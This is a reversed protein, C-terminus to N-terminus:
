EERSSLLLVGLVPSVVKILSLRNPSISSLQVTGDGDTLAGVVAALERPIRGVHIKTTTGNEERSIAYEYPTVPTGAALDSYANGVVRVSYDSADGLRLTCQELNWRDDKSKLAPLAAVYVQYGPTAAWIEHRSSREKMTWELPVQYEFDGDANTTAVKVIREVDDTDEADLIM